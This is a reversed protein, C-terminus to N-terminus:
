EDRYKELWYIMKNVRDKDWTNNLLEKLSYIVPNIASFRNKNEIELAKEYGRSFAGKLKIEFTKDRMIKM